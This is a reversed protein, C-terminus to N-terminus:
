GRGFLPMGVPLITSFAVCSEPPMEALHMIHRVVVDLPLRPERRVNGDSQPVGSEVNETRATAANGIDVQSCSIGFPSGDLILSKTLGTMGHKAATYASSGPRPSHAAVSGNNVIRGGTPQQARMIAFAKERATSLVSSTPHSSTMFNTPATNM